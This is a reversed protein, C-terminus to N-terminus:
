IEYGKARWPGSPLKHGTSIFLRSALPELYM